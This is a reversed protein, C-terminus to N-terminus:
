PGPPRRRRPPRLGPRLRAVSEEAAAVPFLPDDRGTVVLLPRPAILAGVDAHEMRGLMGSLVQSGCMNWPVKHSEAWSSFYGSVVAAAVRDDCPPSSCPSRRGTPSASWAWAHRTSWRTARRARRPVPGPGVPEPDAPEVRGHGPPGSQHRLRLPRAPELRGARRLLAPRAGAGRPRAPGARRRLRRGAAGSPSSRRLGPVQGPRPRPRRARGSGPRDRGDPVLLYAPVSM